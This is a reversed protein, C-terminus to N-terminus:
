GMSNIRISAKVLAAFKISDLPVEKDQHYQNQSVLKVYGEKDSKQVYKVTIYTDGDFDISLLYMEGWFINEKNNIVKYAIIDGSKLLPYMSDGTVHVAGDCKPLNPITLYDTPKQKHLDDFIAVVGAVAEINYLPVRDSRRMDDTKLKFERVIVNSEENAKLMEGRDSLLWESNINANASITKQLVDFSPNGQRKGVINEIVTPAVGISNAFARKNGSYLEDIIKSFKENITM